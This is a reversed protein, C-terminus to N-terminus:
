KAVNFLTRVSPTSGEVEEKDSFREVASSRACFIINLLFYVSLKNIQITDFFKKKLLLSHFFCGPGYFRGPTNKQLKLASYSSGLGFNLTGRGFGAFNFISNEIKLKCRCEFFYFHDM